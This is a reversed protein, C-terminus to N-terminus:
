AWSPLALRHQSWKGTAGAFVDGQAPSESIVATAEVTSARDFTLAGSTTIQGSPTVTVALASATKGSPPAKAPGWSGPRRPCWARQLSRRPGTLVPAQPLGPAARLPLPARTSVAAHAPLLSRTWSECTTAATAPLLTINKPAEKKGPAAPLENEKKRRKYPVFLRVPGSQLSASVPVPTLAARATWPNLPARSRQGRPWCSALQM